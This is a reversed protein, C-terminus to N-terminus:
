NLAKQYEAETYVKLLQNKEVGAQILGKLSNIREELAGEARGEERSEKMYKEMIECM